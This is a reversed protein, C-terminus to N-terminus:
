SVEGMGAAAPADAPVSPRWVVPRVKRRILTGFLVISAVSVALNIGTMIWLDNTSLMGLDNRLFYVELTTATLNIMSLPLLFKWALAMLQDIRLRPYTARIWIFVFLVAGMKLLFWLWGIYKSAPGAWGSLFFTVILAAAALAAGFEAAQIL